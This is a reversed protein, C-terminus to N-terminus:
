VETVEMSCGFCKQGAIWGMDSFKPLASFRVACGLNASGAMRGYTQVPSTLAVQVNDFFCSCNAPVNQATTAYNRLLFGPMLFLLAAGAPATATSSASQWAGNGASVPWTLFGNGLLDTSTITAGTVGSPTFVWEIEYNNAWGSIPSGLMDAVITYTEGPTVPIGVANIAAAGSAFNAPFSYGSVFGTELAYSGSEVQSQQVIVQSDTPSSGTFIGNNPATTWGACIQGSATSPQEFGGNQVLDPGLTTPSGTVSLATIIANAAQTWLTQM